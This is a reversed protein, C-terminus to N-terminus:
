HVVSVPTPRVASSLSGQWGCVGWAGVGWRCWVGVEESQGPSSPRPPAETAPAPVGYADYDGMRRTAAEKEEQNSNNIPLSPLSFSHTHALFSAQTLGERSMGQM